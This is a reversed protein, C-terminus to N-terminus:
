GDELTKKWIRESWVGRGVSTVAAIKVSYPRYKELGDKVYSNINPPIEISERDNKVEDFFAIKYAVIIGNRYDSHVTDWTLALSTSSPVIVKFSRPSASPVLLFFM